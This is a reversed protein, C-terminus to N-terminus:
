SPSSDGAPSGQRGRMLQAPSIGFRSKFSRSFHALDSFGCEYALDTIKRKPLDQLLDRALNLREQWVWRMPSTGVAAFARALTRTSVGHRNALSEPSLRVNGLQRRADCQARELLSRLCGTEDRGKETARWDLLAAMIDLLSAGVLAAPASSTSLDLGAAQRLLSAAFAGMPTESSLAEALPVSESVRSLVAQRPVKVALTEGRLDYTYPLGTDYLVMVGPSQHVERNAQRLTGRGHILLTLLYDDSPTLRVHTASREWHQIPAAMNFLTVVGLSSASIRADFAEPDDTSGDARVFSQCMLDRWAGFRDRPALHSTAFVKPM